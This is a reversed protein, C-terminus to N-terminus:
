TPFSNAENHAKFIHTYFASRCRWELEHADGVHYIYTPFLNVERPKLQVRRRLNHIMVAAVTRLVNSVKRSIQIRM